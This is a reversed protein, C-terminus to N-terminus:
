VNAEFYIFIVHGVKYNKSVDAKKSLISLKKPAGTHKWLIRLTFVIEYNRSSKQNNM